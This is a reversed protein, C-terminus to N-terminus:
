GITPLKNKDYEAKYRNLTKTPGDFLTALHNRKLGFIGIQTFKPPSLIHFINRYIRTMKFIKHVKPYIKHANPLKTTM